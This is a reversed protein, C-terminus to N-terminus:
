PWTHALFLGFYILLFFFNVMKQPPPVIIGLLEQIQPYHFELQLTVVHLPNWGEQITVIAGM